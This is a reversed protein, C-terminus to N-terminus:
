DPGLLDRSALRNVIFEKTQEVTDGYLIMEVQDIREEALAKYGELLPQTNHPDLEHEHMFLFVVRPMIGQTPLKVMEEFAEYEIVHRLGGAFWGYAITSWWCRDLFVGRNAAAKRTNYRVFGTVPQSSPVARWLGRNDACRRVVGCVQGDDWVRYVGNGLQQFTM